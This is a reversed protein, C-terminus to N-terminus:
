SKNLMISKDLCKAVVKISSTDMKQEIIELDAAVLFDM